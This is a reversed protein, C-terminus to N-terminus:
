RLDECDVCREPEEVSVSGVHEVSLVIVEHEEWVDRPGILTEIALEGARTIMDAGFAGHVAVHREYTKPPPMPGAAPLPSIRRQVQAAAAVRKEWQRYAEFDKASFRVKWLELTKM